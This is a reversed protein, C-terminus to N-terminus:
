VHSITIIQRNTLANYSHFTVLVSEQACKFTLPSYFGQIEKMVFSRTVSYSLEGVFALCFRRGRLSYLFM